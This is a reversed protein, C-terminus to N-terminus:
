TVDPVELTPTPPEAPPAPVEHPEMLHAALEECVLHVDAALMNSGATPPRPTVVLTATFQADCFQSPCAVQVTNMTNM